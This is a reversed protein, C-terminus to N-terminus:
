HLKLNRREYAASDVGDPALHMRALWNETFDTEVSIDNGSIWEEELELWKKDAYVRLFKNLTDEKTITGDFDCFIQLKNM